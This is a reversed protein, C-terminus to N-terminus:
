REDFAESWATSFWPLGQLAPILRAIIRQTRVRVEATAQMGDHYNYLKGDATFVRDPLKARVLVVPGNLTVADGIEKGLYRRAEIPGVVEDGIAEVELDAYAYRFGGVELRVRQGARLMPRYQGPILAVITPEARAGTISLMPDGPVLSQGPRIRVDNVIGDHPARVARAELKAQSFDRESRLRALGERVAVDGPNRLSKVLQLEFESRIRELELLERADHLRVLIQKASVREGPAVGVTSVIAPETATIDTRGEIRVIAPGSAYESMTGLFLYLFSSISAIVVLWYARGVWRPSLQLPRSLSYGANAHAELAARRFPSSGDDRRRERAFVEEIQTQLAMQGFAPSFNSALSLMKQQDNESFMPRNQNRVGILVGLTRRDPSLLPVAMLRENGEAEPDDISKEFRSDKDAREVLVTTGTRAVYGAVGAIASRNADGRVAGSSWLTESISDYIYCSARDTEVLESVADIAVRSATPLDRQASLRRTVELVRQSFAANKASLATDPDRRSVEWYQAVAGRVVDQLEKAQLPRRLYYFVRHLRSLEELQPGDEPTTLMMRVARCSPFRSAIERLLTKADADPLRTTLVMVAVEHEDLLRLALAASDAELIDYQAELARRAITRTAADGDVFLVVEFFGLIFQDLTGRAKEDLAGFTAGVLVAEGGRHDAAHRTWAITLPLKVPTSTRPLQCAVEVKTGVPFRAEEDLAICLQVGGQSVDRLMVSIPKGDLRVVARCLVPLRRELLMKQKSM